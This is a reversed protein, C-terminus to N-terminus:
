ALLRFRSIQQIILYRHLVEALIRLREAVAHARVVVIILYLVVQRVIDLKLRASLFTLLQITVPVQVAPDEVLPAGADLVSDKLVIVAPLSHLILHLVSLTYFVVLFSGLSFIVLALGYVHYIAHHHAHNLDLALVVLIQHVWLAPNVVHLGIEDASSVRLAKFLHAGVHM